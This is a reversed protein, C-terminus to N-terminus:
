VLAEWELRTDGAALATAQAAFMGVWANHHIPAPAPQYPLALAGNAPRAVQRLRDVAARRGGGDLDFLCAARLAQATLDFQEPSPESVDDRVAVSRPFGGSELQQKWAWRAGAGAKDLADRDGRATGFMWLAEVAYLHPHLMTREDDRQTRFRGNEEQLEGAGAAMRDNPDRLDSSGAREALLFCQLAKLMHAEGDVSWGSRASEGTGSVAPVRGREDIEGAMQSVLGQGFEVWHEEHFAAGANILGSAVMALDFNYVTGSDFGARASLDGTKELRQLLWAGALLAARREEDSPDHLHSFWTLAYGTIEPYEFALRGTEEDRWAHFAGSPGQCGGRGLWRRLGLSLSSAGGANEADAIEGLQSM